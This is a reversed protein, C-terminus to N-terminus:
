SLGLIHHVLFCRFMREGRQLLLLNIKRIHLLCMVVGLFVHMRFVEFVYLQGWDDLLRVLKQGFKNFELLVVFLFRLHDLLLAFFKTFSPISKFVPLVIILVFSFELGDHTRKTVVASM